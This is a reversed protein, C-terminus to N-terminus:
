QPLESISWYLDLGRMLDVFQVYDVPKVMYGAVSLRFSAVKDQDHRSTTLMVVPLHKLADDAKIASLAEIGNMRPMNIDMLIICPLHAIDARLIALAEEGDRAVKIPNNVRLEGLARKVTMVDVLDDDVLLIHRQSNM